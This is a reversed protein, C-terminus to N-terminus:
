RGAVEGALRFARVAADGDLKAMFPILRRLMEPSELGAMEVVNQLPVAADLCRILWTNRMRQPLPHTPHTPIRGIIQHISQGDRQSRGPAILWREDPSGALHAVFDNWEEVVPVLRPGVHVAVMGDHLTVVDCERVNMVEFSTLGAGLTLAVVAGCLNRRRKSPQTEAWRRIAGQEEPSYPQSVPTSTSTRDFETVNAIGAITRLVKRERAAVSPLVETARHAEYSDIVDATLLADNMPGVGYFLAWDAFSSLFTLAQRVESEGHYPAYRFRITGRVFDQMQAWAETDLKANYNAIIADTTM